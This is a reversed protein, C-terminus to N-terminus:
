ESKRERACAILDTFWIATMDLEDATNGLSFKESVNIQPKGKVLAGQFFEIEVKRGDVRKFGHFSQVVKNPNRSRIFSEVFEIPDTSVDFNLMTEEVLNERSSKSKIRILGKGERVPSRTLSTIVRKGNNVLETRTDKYACVVYPTGAAQATVSFFFATALILKKM